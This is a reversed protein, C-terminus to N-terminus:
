ARFLGSGCLIDHPISSHIIKNCQLTSNSVSVSAGLLRKTLGGYVTNQRGCPRDYTLIHYVGQLVAQLRQHVGLERHQYIHQLMRFQEEQFACLGTRSTLCPAEDRLSHKKRYTPPHTYTLAHM